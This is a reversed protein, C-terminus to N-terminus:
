VGRRSQGILVALRYVGFCALVGGVAMNLGRVAGFPVSRGALALLFLVSGLFVPTMLGAGLGFVGLEGRGYGRAEARCSLVGTWFLITLPSSVTMTLAALFSEGPSLDGGGGSLGGGQELGKLFFLIGFAILVLNGIWGFLRKFRRNEMLAGVGLLSLLIYGFDVLTVALIGAVGSGFGSDLTIGLLLFFVPGLALQLFLGTRLGDFLARVM